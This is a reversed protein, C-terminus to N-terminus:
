SYNMIINLPFRSNVFELFAIVQAATEGGEEFDLVLLDDSTAYQAVTSVFHQAQKLPDQAKRFFHYAGRAYGADRMATFYDGFTPDVYDVGETAKTIMLAPIPVIVRFNPIVKWHSVDYCVPDKIIMRVLEVVYRRSLRPCIVVSRVSLWVPLGSRRRYRLLSYTKSKGM